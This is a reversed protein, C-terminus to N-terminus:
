LVGKTDKELCLDLAAKIIGISSVLSKQTFGGNTWFSYSYTIIDNTENTYAKILAVDRNIINLLEAIDAEKAEPALKYSVSIAVYRKKSDIDLYFKHFDKIQIYDDAVELVEIYASEFTEKLFKPTLEEAQILKQSLGLSPSFLLFLFGFVLTAHFKNM